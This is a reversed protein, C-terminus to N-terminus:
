MKIIIATAQEPIIWNSTNSWAKRILTNFFEHYPVRSVLIWVIFGANLSMLISLVLLQWTQSIADTMHALSDTVEDFIAVYAVGPTSIMGIFPGAFYEKVNTSALVPFIATYDTHSLNSSFMDGLGNIPKQYTIRNCGFCCLHIAENLMGIFFITTNILWWFEHECSSRRKFHFHKSNAAPTLSPWPPDIDPHTVKSTNFLCSLKVEGDKSLSTLSQHCARASFLAEIKECALVNFM